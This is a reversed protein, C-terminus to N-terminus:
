KKKFWEYTLKLGEKFEVQPAWSLRDRCKANDGWWIMEGEQSGDQYDVKIKKGSIESLIEIIHNVTIIEGSCLNIIEVGEPTYHIARLLAEVVDSIYLFDRGQEGSGHVTFPKEQSLLDCFTAIASNYYPRCRPGFFNSGRFVVSRFPYCSIIEEAAKNSIGYINQPRTPHLESISAPKKPAQYVQFSSMFILRVDRKAYRALAELLNLTGLTNVKILNEKTDRNVGALHFIVEKDEVFPKLSEKKLLNYKGKDFPEVEVEPVSTLGDLLHSGVFGYDGTIGVKMTIEDV